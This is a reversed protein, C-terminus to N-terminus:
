PLTYRLVRGVGEDPRHILLLEGGGEQARWAGAAPFAVTEEVRLPVLERKPQWVGEGDREFQWSAQDRPFILGGAAGPRPLPMLPLRPEIRRDNRTLSLAVPLSGKLTATPTESLRGDAERRRVEFTVPIAAERIVKVQDIVNLKPIQLLALDQLGDGDMDAAWARFIWGGTRILQDPEPGRAKAEDDAGARRSRGLYNLVYGGGPDFVLLDLAGDGDFDGSQSPVRVAFDLILHTEDKATPGFPRRRGDEQFLTWQRRERVLLEYLPPSSAQAGALGHHYAPVRLETRMNWGLGYGLTQDSYVPVPLARRRLVKGDSKRLVYHGLEAMGPIALAFDDEHHRPAFFSLRTPGAEPRGRFLGDLEARVERRDRAAERGIEFWTLSDGSVAVGRALLDAPLEADPCLDWASADPPLAFRRGPGAEAELHLV